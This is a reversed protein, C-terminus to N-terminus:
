QPFNMRQLLSKYRPDDRMPDYRQDQNLLMLWTNHEKLAKELWQFSRDRDGLAAYIGAFLHPSVYNEQALRKLKDLTKLAEAKQSSSAYASALEAMLFWEPASSPPIKRIEAFAEAYRGTALYIQALNMRVPGFEPALDLVKRYEREAEAWKRAGAFRWGLNTITVPSLPDLKVATQAEAIAEEHRGVVSLLLAHHYHALSSSPNIELATRIEREAGTWDWRSVMLVYAMSLHAEAIRPDLELARSAAEQAKQLLPGPPSMGLFTMNAHWEAIGSYALANNPDLRLSEEYYQLSKKSSEATFANAHFRGLLYAEHSAPNVPRTAALRSQEQPTLKIKVEDAISGAVERQLALIDRAEREYSKAWLHRDAAPDILQVTIGVKDGARQVSGEIIADVGLEKAIEPIPKLKAKYLMVSTRSTVKKLGSIQALETILAETMGDAFFEQNPDGSMNVLPLVAISEIRPPGARGLLRERAGGVNFALLLGALALM